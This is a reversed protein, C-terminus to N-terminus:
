KMLLKFNESLKLRSHSTIILEVSAPCIIKHNGSSIMESKGIVSVKGGISQTVINGLNLSGGSNTNYFDFKSYNLILESGRGPLYMTETRVYSFPEISLISNIRLSKCHLISAIHGTQITSKSNITIDPMYSQFFPSISISCNDIDISNLTLSSFSFQEIRNLELGRLSLTGGSKSFDLLCGRAPTIRSLSLGSLSMNSATFRITGTFMVDNFFYLNQTNIFGNGNIITKEPGFFLFDNSAKLTGNNLNVTGNIMCASSMNFTVTGNIPLDFGKLFSVFGKVTENNSFFYRKQVYTPTITGDLNATLQKQSFIWSM